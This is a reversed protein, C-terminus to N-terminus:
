VDIKRREEKSGAPSSLIEAAKYRRSGDKSDSGDAKAEFIASLINIRGRNQGGYQGGFDSALKPM